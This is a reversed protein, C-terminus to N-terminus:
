FLPVVHQVEGQLCFKAYKGAPIIYEVIDNKGCSFAKAYLNFAEECEDDFPLYPTAM